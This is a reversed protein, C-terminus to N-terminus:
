DISAQDIGGRGGGGGWFFFVFFFFFFFFSFFFSAFVRVRFCDMVVALWGVSFLLVCVCVFLGYSHSMSVCPSKHKRM